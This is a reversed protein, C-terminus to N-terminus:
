IRHLSVVKDCAGIHRLKALLLDHNVTDFAKSLNLFVARTLMGKDLKDLVNDTFHALAVDTLLKPCFGFQKLTLINSKTLYGYLQQHVARELIKSVTLLDTIPRYNNCESKDGSKFFATVKGQKWVAPFISSDVSRNFLRTLVPTICQASDKLLRSSIKDLGIGKNTKLAKLQNFVFSESVRTFSFNNLHNNQKSASKFINSFGRSVSQFKAAPKTGITVFHENLLFAISKPGTVQIRNSQIFSLQSINKRCTIKNM